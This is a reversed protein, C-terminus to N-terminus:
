TWVSSLLSIRKHFEASNDLLYPLHHDWDRGHKETTKAIIDTLTANFLEVLGDTQPHYGSMKVKKVGLLRCVELFLESLFNPGRDSLLEQQAGNRCVVEEVFLRAVTQATQDPAPFVEAWKTLYDLFVLAYQNGEFITPLKM